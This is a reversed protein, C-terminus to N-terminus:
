AYKWNIRIRFEVSIFARHHCDLIWISAFSMQHQNKISMEYDYYSKPIALYLSFVYNCRFLIILLRLHRSIHIFMCKENKQEIEGSNLIKPSNFEPNAGLCICKKWKSSITNLEFLDDVSSKVAIEYVQLQFNFNWQMKKWKSSIANLEFSNNWNFNLTTKKYYYYFYYYYVTFSPAWYLLFTYRSIFKAITYM